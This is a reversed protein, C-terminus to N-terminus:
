NKKRWFQYWRKKKATPAKAPTPPTTPDVKVATKAPPTAIPKPKAPAAVPAKIAGKIRVVKNPSNVANSSITITKNIPGTRKTDYKVKISASKGPKIAERPWAPVTCGCSARCNSILLDESGTNKFQFECTGDAGNEITGYDHVDKKFEIKPGKKDQATTSLFAFSALVLALVLKKM